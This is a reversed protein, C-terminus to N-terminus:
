KMKSVIDCVGYITDTFENIESNFDWATRISYNGVYTGRWDVHRINTIFTKCDSGLGVWHEVKIQEILWEAGWHLLEPIPGMVVHGNAPEYEGMMEMTEATETFSTFQNIVPTIFNPGLEAELQTNVSKSFKGIYDFMSAYDQRLCSRMDEPISSKWAAEYLEFWHKAHSTVYHTNDVTEKMYSAGAVCIVILFILILLNLLISVCLGLKFCKSNKESNIIHQQLEKIDNTIQLVHQNQLTNMEITQQPHKQQSPQESHLFQM